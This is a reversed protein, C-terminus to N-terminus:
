ISAGNVFVVVLVVTLGLARLADASSFNDPSKVTHECCMPHEERLARHSHAAGHILNPSPITSAHSGLHDANYSHHPERNVLRM